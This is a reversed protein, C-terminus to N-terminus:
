QKIIIVSNNGEFNEGPSNMYIGLEGLEGKKYEQLVKLVITYSIEEM